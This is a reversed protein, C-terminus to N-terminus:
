NKDEEKQPVPMQELYETAEDVQEIIKMFCLDEKRIVANVQIPSDGIYYYTNDIDLLFAQIVLPAEDTTKYKCLMEVYEGAFTVWFLESAKRLDM